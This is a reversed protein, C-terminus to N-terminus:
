RTDGTVRQATVVMPGEGDIVYQLNLGIVKYEYDWMYFHLDDNVDTTYPIMVAVQGEPLNIAANLNDYPNQIKADVVCPISKYVPHTEYVPRNMADTGILIETEGSKISIASNCLRIIAKPILGTRFDFLLWHQNDIIAYSGRRRVTNPRFLLEKIFSLIQNGQASAKVDLIRVDTPISDIPIVAFTSANSFQDNVFAEQFDLYQEKPTKAVLRYANYSEYPM